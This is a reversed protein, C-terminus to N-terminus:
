ALGWYTIYGTSVGGNDIAKVREAESENLPFVYPDSGSNTAFDHGTAGATPATGDFTMTLGAVRLTLTICVTGVPAAAFIAVGGVTATGPKAQSSLAKLGTLPAANTIM